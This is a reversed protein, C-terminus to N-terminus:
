GHQARMARHGAPREVLARVVNETAVENCGAVGGRGGRGEGGVELPGGEMFSLVVAADVVSLRWHRGGKKEVAIDGRQSGCHPEMGRKKVAM